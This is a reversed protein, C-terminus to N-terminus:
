RVRITAASEEFASECDDDDARQYTIVFTKYKSLVIYVTQHIVPENGSEIDSVIRYGPFGDFSREEFSVVRFDVADKNDKSYAESMMKQYIDKTLESSMDETVYPANQLELKQRNTLTKDKGNSYLGYRISSSEMPYSENIFLGPEIGPVFEPPIIFSCQAATKLEDSALVDIVDGATFGALSAFIVAILIGAVIKIKEIANKRMFYM